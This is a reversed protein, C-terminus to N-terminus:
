SCIGTNVNNEAGLDENRKQFSDIEEEGGGRQKQQKQQDNVFSVSSEKKEKKKKPISVVREVSTFPNVAEEREGLSNMDADEEKFQIPPPVTPPPPRKSKKRKLEKTTTTGKGGANTTNPKGSSSM